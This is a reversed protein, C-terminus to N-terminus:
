GTRGAALVSIIRFFVRGTWRSVRSGPVSTTRPIATESTSPRAEGVLGGANSDDSGIGVIQWRAEAPAPKTTTLKVEVDFECYGAEMLQLVRQRVQATSLSADHNAM